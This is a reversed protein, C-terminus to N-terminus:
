VNSKEVYPTGIPLVEEEEEFEIYLKDSTLFSEAEVFPEADAEVEKSLM